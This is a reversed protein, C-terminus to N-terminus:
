SATAVQGSGPFHRSHRPEFGRGGAHCAPVRVLQAVGAESGCVMHGALLPRPTRRQSRSTLCRFCRETRNKLSRSFERQDRASGGTKVQSYGGNGCGVLFKTRCFDRRRCFTIWLWHLFAPTQDLRRSTPGVRCIPALARVKWRNGAKRCTAPVPDRAALRLFVRRSEHWTRIANVDHPITPPSLSSSGVDETYVLREVLQALRGGIPQSMPAESRSPLLCNSPPNCNV